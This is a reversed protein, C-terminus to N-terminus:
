CHDGNVAGTTSVIQNGKLKAFVTKSKNSKSPKHSSSSGLSRQPSRPSVPINLRTTPLNCTSSPSSSSSSSSSSASLSSSAQLEKHSQNQPKQSEQQDQGNSEYATRTNDRIIAPLLEDSSARHNPLTSRVLTTRRDLTGNPGVIINNYKYQDRLLSRKDASQPKNNIFLHLKQYESPALSHHHHPHSSYHSSHHHNPHTTSSNLTSHNNHHSSSLPQQYQHYSNQSYISGQFQSPSGTLASSHLFNNGHVHHYNSDDPICEYLHEGPIRTLSVDSRMIIPRMPGTTADSHSLGEMLARTEMELDTDMSHDYLRSMEEHGLGSVGTPKRGSTLLQASGPGIMPEESEPYCSNDPYPCSMPIGQPMISGGASSGSSSPKTSCTGLTGQILSSSQHPSSASPHFFTSREAPSSSAVKEGDFQACLQCCLWSLWHCRSVVRVYERRVKDNVLCQFTFIYVGQLVNFGTFLSATLFSPFSIYLVGSSWTLGLILILGLSGRAWLILQKYRAILIAQRRIQKIKDQHKVEKHVFSTSIHKSIACQAIILLVLNCSLIFALPLVFSQLVVTSNIWCVTSGGYPSGSLGLTLGILTLPAIYATILYIPLRSSTTEYTEILTYYLHISEMLMWLFSATLTYHLSAAIISCFTNLYVKDIGLIFILEVALLCLCLNAHIFTREARLNRFVLFTLLCICLFFSSVICGIRTLGHLILGGFGTMEQRTFDVLVAFNTLHNCRCLTHTDNSNVTTCGFESWQSSDWFVCRANTINEVILHRFMIEIPERLLIMSSGDKPVLVGVVDSNVITAVIHQDNDNNNSNINDVDVDNNDKNNSNMKYEKIGRDSLMESDSGMSSLLGSPESIIPDLLHGMKGYVIYGIRIMNRRTLDTLSIRPLYISNSNENDGDYIPFDASNQDRFKIVNDSTKKSNVDEKPLQLGNPLQDLRHAHISMYLNANSQYYDGTSSATEMFVLTIREFESILAAASRTRDVPLLDYWADRHIDDLLNSCIDLMIKLTEKVFAFQKDEPYDSLGTEIKSILQSIIDIIPAIDGGFLPRHKTGEVLDFATTLIPEEERIRNEVSMLWKSRCGSLDAEPKIWVATGYPDISCFWKASGEGLYPCEQRVLSGPRTWNWFLGRSTISPCFANTFSPLSPPHLTKEPLPFPSSQVSGDYPPHDPWSPSPVLSPSFSSHLSSPTSSSLIPFSSQDGEDSSIHNTKTFTSEKTSSSKTIANQNNDRSPAKDSRVYPSVTTTSSTSTTSPTSTTTTTLQTTWQGPKNPRRKKHDSICQYHVELYKTNGPCGDGFQEATATVHCENKSECLDSLVRFSIHSMCDVQMGANGQDNCISISFRGFNARILSIRTGPNCTINASQGECTLLTAYKAGDVQNFYFYVLFFRMWFTFELQQAM